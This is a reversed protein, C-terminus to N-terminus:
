CGTASGRLLVPRKWRTPIRGSLATHMSGPASSALWRGDACVGLEFGNAQPVLYSQTDNFVSLPGRIRASQQVTSVVASAPMKCGVAAKIHGNNHNSVRVMCSTSILRPYGMRTVPDGTVTRVFYSDNPQGIVACVAALAVLM